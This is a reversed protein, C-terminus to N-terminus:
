KNEEANFKYNFNDPDTYFKYRFGLGINVTFVSIQNEIAIAGGLFSPYIPANQTDTEFYDTQLTGKRVGAAYFISASVFISFKPTIQYGLLATGKFALSASVPYTWQRLEMTDLVIRGSNINGGMYGYVGVDVGIGYYLKKKSLFGIGLMAYFANWDSGELIPLHYYNKSKAAEFAHHMYGVTFSTRWPSTPMPTISTMLEVYGGYGAASRSDSEDTLLRYNGLPISVGGNVRFDFRAEFGKNEQTPTVPDQGFIQTSIILFFIYIIARM